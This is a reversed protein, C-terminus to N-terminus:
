APAAARAARRISGRWWWIGGGLGLLVGSVADAVYHEKLTLTSVAIGAALLVHFWRLGASRAIMAGMFGTIVSYAVHMSPLCAYPRTFASEHMRTQMAHAESTWPAAVPYLLQIAGGIFTIVIFARIARKYDPEHMAAVILGAGLTLYPYAAWYFVWTWGLLPIRDDLGISPDRLAEPPRNSNVRTVTYYVALHLLIVGVIALARRAYDVTSPREMALEEAGNLPPGG